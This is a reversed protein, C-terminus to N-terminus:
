SSINTGIMLPLCLRLDEKEAKMASTFFLRLDEKKEAQRARACTCRINPSGLLTSGTKTVDSNSGGSPFFELLGSTQATTGMLRNTHPLCFASVYGLCLMDTSFNETSEDSSLNGCSRVTQQCHSCFVFDMKSETRM